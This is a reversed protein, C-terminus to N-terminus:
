LLRSHRQDRVSEVQCIAKTRDVQEKRLRLLLHVARAVAHDPALHSTVMAGLSVDASLEARVEGCLGDAALHAHHEVRRPDLHHDQHEQLATFVRNASRRRPTERQRATSATSRAHQQGQTGRMTLTSAAHLAHRSPSAASLANVTPLPNTAGIATTASRPKGTVVHSCRAGRCCRIPGLHM